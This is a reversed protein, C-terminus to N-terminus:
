IELLMCSLERGRFLASEVMVIVEPVQIWGSSFPSTEFGLAFTRWGSTAVPHGVVLYFATKHM